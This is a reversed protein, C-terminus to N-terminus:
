KKKIPRSVLSRKPSIKLATGKQVTQPQVIGTKRPPTKNQLRGKKVAQRQVIAGPRVPAVKARNRPPIRLGKPLCEMYTGRSARNRERVNGPSETINEWEETEENYSIDPPNILPETGGPNRAQDSICAGPSLNNGRAHATDPAVLGTVLVAAAGIFSILVLTSTPTSMLKMGKTKM